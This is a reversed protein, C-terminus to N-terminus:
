NESDVKHILSIIASASLWNGNCYCGRDDTGFRQEILEKLQELIENKMEKAGNRKMVNAM